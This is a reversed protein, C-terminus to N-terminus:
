RDVPINTPAQISAAMAAADFSGGVPAKPLGTLGGTLAIPEFIRRVLPGAAQAGFGSEELIAVAVYQAARSPGFGVFLSTDAKGQVQATGTKGAVQFRDQPFGAFTTRATGGPQSTVGEFGTLMPERWQPPLDVRRVAKAQFGKVVSSRGAPKVQLVVQPTWLFGGNAFTAYGNALQLPTALVDGQGIAINMNDGAYWGEYAKQKAVDGKYLVKVFDKRWAPTPVRGDAEAALGLGTKEGFGFERYYRQLAEEGIGQQGRRRWLQDGLRYFYVDSSVTIARSLSVTGNATGGSNQRRCSGSRCGQIAYFGPDTITMEPTIEGTALGAYASFLKWTSGPAYQGSVARNNLPYNLAPDTLKAYEATSIGGVFQAPDFTPYSAMAMVQGNRPDLVVSSGAPAAFKECGVGNCANRRALLQAALNSEVIYQLNIDVTLFVDDGPVPARRGIERVVRNRADVEYRVEGPTGRLFREMLREVGTKGIEDDVEYPKQRNQYLDLDAQNVAGVTGLVHALLQGYRYSRVTVRSAAVTPFDDARENLSVELAESVDVAVPIPEFRSFRPDDIRKRLEAVTVPETVPPAAVTGAPLTTTTGPPASTPSSPTTSGPPVPASATVLQPGADDASVQGAAQRVRDRTLEKALRSLVQNQTVRDLKEFRQWDVTVETSRRNDVIVTGNRDLIRGRPAEVMVTRVRLNEAAARYTPAAAVQLFWLRAFLAAFLSLAVIGLISLRHRPTDVSM